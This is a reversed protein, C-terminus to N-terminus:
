FPLKLNNKKNETGSTSGSSGTLGKILADAADKKASEVASNVANETLSSFEKKKQELVKQLDDVRLSQVNVDGEIGMVEKVKLLATGSSSNIKENLRRIVEETVDDAVGYAAAKLGKEFQSAFNGSLDFIVGETDTYGMMCNMSLDTVAALAQNYYKTATENSFGDSTLSVPKLDVKGGLTFGEEGATGSFKLNMKGDVSPIGNEKAIKQGDVSAKFGNGSYDAAILPAATESRADVTLAANHTVGYYSYSCKFECPKNRVDPNSAVETLEASFSPGSVYVHEILFAPYEDSYWFTTGEMRSHTKKEIRKVEGEAAKKQKEAIANKRVELAYDVLKQAYPYYKGMLDYGVTNLAQTLFGKPNAITGILSSVRNKVFDSDHAVADTLSASTKKLSDFDSAVEKQASAMRYKIGNKNTEDFEKLLSDLTEIAKLVSAPDNKNVSNLSKLKENIEATKADVEAKLEAPRTKWKDSLEVAKEEATKAAQPTQLEATFNEVISDVDEGGVLQAAQMKLDELALNTRAKLAKTFASEQNTKSKPKIYCSTSRKTNFQMGSCELNECVFKGRLIQTLNFDFDITEIEFLNRYYSNKNGVALGKVKIQAGLIEVKVSDVDTKAEFIGECASVIANKVIVNKFTVVVFVIAAMACATAILPLLKIRGKQAKIEKALTKFRQLEVKTYKQNLDICLFDKKEPNNGKSFMSKVDNKDKPVYLKSLIKKEFKKDTYAKKFISPLKKAPYLKKEKKQKKAVPSKKEVTEKKDAM